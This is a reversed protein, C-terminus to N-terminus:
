PNLDPSVIRIEGAGAMRARNLGGYQTDHGWIEATPAM